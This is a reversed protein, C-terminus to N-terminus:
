ARLGSAARRRWAWGAVVGATWLWGWGTSSSGPEGGLGASCSEKWQEAACESAYGHIPIPNCSAYDIEAAPYLSCIGAIDDETLTRLETSGPEADGHMTSSEDLSHAIGVMHGMEHTLVGILDYDKTTDTATLPFMATNVEVDADLIEGTKNAYTVTTLALAESNDHYPWSKDRFVVLNVNGAKDNYEARACEVEGMDIVDFGPYGGGPCNALTWAEFAQRVAGRVDSFPIKKTGDRQIAYGLCTRMWRLAKGCAEGEQPICIPQEQGCTSTFCYAGAPASWLACALAGALSM